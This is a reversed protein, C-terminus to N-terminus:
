INKIEIVEREQRLGLNFLKPIKSEQRMVGM